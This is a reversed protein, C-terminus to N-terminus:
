ADQKPHKHFAMSHPHDAIMRHTVFVLNEHAPRQKCSTTQQTDAGPSMFIFFVTQYKVRVLRIYNTGRLINKAFCQPLEPCPYRM